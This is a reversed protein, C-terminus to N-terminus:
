GDMLACREQETLRDLDAQDFLATASQTSDVFDGNMWRFAALCAARIAMRHVQGRDWGQEDAMSAAIDVHHAHVLGGRGEFTVYLRWEKIEDDFVPDDFVIKRLVNEGEDHQQMTMRRSLDMWWALAWEIIM